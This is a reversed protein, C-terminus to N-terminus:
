RLTIRREKAFLYPQAVQELLIGFLGPSDDSEIVELDNRECFDMFAPTDRVAFYNSRVLFM